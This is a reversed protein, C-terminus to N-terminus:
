IAYRKKFKKILDYVIICLLFVFFIRISNYLDIIRYDTIFIKKIVIFQNPKRTFIFRISALDDYEPLRIINNGEGMVTKLPAGEYQIGDSNNFLLTAETQFSSVEDFEFNIYKSEIDVNSLYIIMQPQNSLSILKNGTREIDKCSKYIEEESLIYNNGSRSFLLFPNTRNIGYFALCFSVIIMIATVIVSKMRRDLKM